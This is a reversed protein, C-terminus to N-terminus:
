QKAPCARADYLLYQNEDNIIKKPIQTYNLCAM